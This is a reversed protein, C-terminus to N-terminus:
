CVFVHLIHHINWVQISQMHKLTRKYTRKRKNLDFYLHGRGIIWTVAKFMTRKFFLSPVEIMNYTYKVHDSLNVVIEGWRIVTIVLSSVANKLLVVCLSNMDDCAMCGLLSSDETSLVVSNTDDYVADNGEQDCNWSVFLSM